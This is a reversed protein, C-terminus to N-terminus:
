DIDYNNNEAWNIWDRTMNNVIGYNEPKIPNVGTLEFLASFWHTNTRKLDRLIWPVTKSGLDIIELYNSNNFIISSSSIYKTENLWKNKLKLFKRYENHEYRESILISNGKFSNLANSYNYALTTTESAVSTGKVIEIYDRFSM